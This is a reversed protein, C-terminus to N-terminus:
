SFAPTMRWPAESSRANLTAVVGRTVTVRRWAYPPACMTMFERSRPASRVRAQGLALIPTMPGDCATSIMCRRSMAAPGSGTPGASAEAASCRGTPTAADRPNTSSIMSGYSVRSRMAKASSAARHCRRGRRRPAGDLRAVGRLLRDEVRGALREGLLAEVVQRHVRDGALREHGSRRDVEVERVLPRDDVPEDLVREALHVECRRRVEVAVAVRALLEVGAERPDHRADVAM